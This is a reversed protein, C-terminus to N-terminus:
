GTGGVESRVEGTVEPRRGLGNVGAGVILDNTMRVAM